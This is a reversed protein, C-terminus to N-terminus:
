RVRVIWKNEKVTKEIIVNKTDRSALDLLEELLDLTQKYTLKKNKM